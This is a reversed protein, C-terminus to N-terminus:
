YRDLKAIMAVVKLKVQKMRKTKKRQIKVPAKRLVKGLVRHVGTKILKCSKM